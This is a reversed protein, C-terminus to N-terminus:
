FRISTKGRYMVDTSYLPDFDTIMKKLVDDLCNKHSKIDLLDTSAKNVRVTGCM